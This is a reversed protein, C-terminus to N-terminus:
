VVRKADPPILKRDEEGIAVLCPARGQAPADPCAVLRCDLSQAEVNRQRQIEAYGDGRTIAFLAFGQDAQCVPPEIFHFGCGSEPVPSGFSM